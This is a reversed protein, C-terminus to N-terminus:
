RLHVIGHELKYAGPASDKAVSCSIVTGTVDIADSTIAGPRSVGNTSTVFVQPAPMDATWVSPINVSPYIPQPVQWIVQYPWYWPGVERIVEKERIIIVVSAQKAKEDTEQREAIRDLRGEKLDDLDMKLVKRKEQLKSINRDLSDIEELTKLVIKKVEAVQRERLAKEAQEVGEKVVEKATM